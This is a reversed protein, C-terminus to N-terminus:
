TISADSGNICQTRWMKNQIDVDIAIWRGSTGGSMFRHYYRFPANSHVKLETRHALYFTQEVM